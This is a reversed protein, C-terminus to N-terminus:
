FVMFAQKSIHVYRVDSNIGSTPTYTTMVGRDGTEAFEPYPIIWVSTYERTSLTGSAELEKVTAYAGSTGPNTLSMIQVPIGGGGGNNEIIAFGSASPGPRISTNTSPEVRYRTGITLPM